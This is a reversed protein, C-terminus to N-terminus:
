SQQGEVINISKYNFQKGNNVLLKYDNKSIKM